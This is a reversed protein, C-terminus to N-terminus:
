SFFDQFVEQDLPFPPVGQSLRIQHRKERYKANAETESQLYDSELGDSLEVNQFDWNDRFKM